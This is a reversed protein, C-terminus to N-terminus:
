AIAYLIIIVAFIQFVLILPIGVVFRRQKTKHRFAYMGLIGGPSGGLASVLFLIKEPIRWIGKIAKRKDAYM